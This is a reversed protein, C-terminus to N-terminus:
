WICFTGKTSYNNIMFLNSSPLHSFGKFCSMSNDLMSILKTFIIRALNNLGLLLVYHFLSAARTYM